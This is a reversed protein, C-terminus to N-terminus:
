PPLGKRSPIAPKRPGRPAPEDKWVDKWLTSTHAEATRNEAGHLLRFVKACGSGVSAIGTPGTIPEAQATEGHPQRTQYEGSKRLHQQPQLGEYHPIKSEEDERQGM